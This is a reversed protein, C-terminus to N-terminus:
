LALFLVIKLSSMSYFFRVLCRPVTYPTSGFNCFMSRAVFNLTDSHMAVPLCFFSFLVFLLSKACFFFSLFCVVIRNWAAEGDLSM